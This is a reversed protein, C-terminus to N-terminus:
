QNDIGAEPPELTLILFNVYCRYVTRRPAHWPLSLWFTSHQVLPCCFWTFSKLISFVKKPNFPKGPPESLLSDGQLAASRPETRPDPLDGPSPIAEWEQTRAQLIEHVSSGPPSCDMPGLSESVVSQSVIKSEHPEINFFCVVWGFFPPLGLYVNRWLLCASPWYVCSFISLM